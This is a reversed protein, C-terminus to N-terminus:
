ECGVVFLFRWVYAGRSISLFFYLKKSLAQSPFVFAECLYVDQVTSSTRGVTKSWVTSNQLFGHLWYFVIQKKKEERERGRRVREGRGRWKWESTESSLHNKKFIKKKITTPRKGLKQIPVFLFFSYACVIFLSRQWLHIPVCPTGQICLIVLIAWLPSFLLHMTQISEVSNHTCLSSILHLGCILIAIHVSLFSKRVTFASKVARACESRLRM